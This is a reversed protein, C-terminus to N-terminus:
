NRKTCYIKRFPYEITKDKSIWAGIWDFGKESINTFTLKSDGQIGNPSMQGKYLVIDEEVKGGTWDRTAMTMGPNSFYAVVWLASDPHYQRISGAYQGNERWLEDQIATGNMIYKFKWTMKISDPDWEGDAKRSVRYCDCVGIMADYEGVEVPASPNLRGFPYDVTAEYTFVSDMQASLQLFYFLISILILTIKIRKM